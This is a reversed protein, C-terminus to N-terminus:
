PLEYLAFVVPPECNVFIGFLPNKKVEIHTHGHSECNIPQNEDQCTELRDSHVAVNVFMFSTIVSDLGQVELSKRM